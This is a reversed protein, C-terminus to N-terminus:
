AQPKPPSANDHKESDHLEVLMRGYDRKGIDIALEMVMGAIDSLNLAIAHLKTSLEIARPDITAPM